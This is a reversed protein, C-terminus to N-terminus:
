HTIRECEKKCKKAINKINEALEAAQEWELRPVNRYIHSIILSRILTSRNYTATADIEHFVGDTVRITIHAPEGTEHMVIAVRRWVDATPFKGMYSPIPGKVDKGAAYNELIGRVYDSITIGMSDALVGLGMRMNHPLQIGIRRELNAM